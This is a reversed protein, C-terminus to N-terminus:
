NIVNIKKKYRSAMKFLYEYENILNQKAPIFVFLIDSNIVLKKFSDTIHSPHFNKGYYEKREASYIGYGTYSPNYEKYEFGYNLSSKKVIKSADSEKGDTYITLYIGFKLKLKDMFKQLPVLGRFDPHCLIAIKM